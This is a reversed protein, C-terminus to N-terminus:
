SKCADIAAKAVESKAPIVTQHLKDSNFAVTEGGTPSHQTHTAALFNKTVGGNNAIIQSVSNLHDHIQEGRVHPITASRRIGLGDMLEIIKTNLNSYARKLNVGAGAAVEEDPIN